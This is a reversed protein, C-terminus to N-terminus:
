YTRFERTSTSFLERIAPTGDAVADLVQQEMSYPLLKNAYLFLKEQGIDVRVVPYLEGQSHLHIGSGASDGLKIQLRAHEVMDKYFNSSRKYSELYRLEYDGTYKLDGLENLTDLVASMVDLKQQETLDTDNLKLRVANVLDKM